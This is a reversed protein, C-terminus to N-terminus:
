KGVLIPLSNGPVLMEMETCKIFVTTKSVLYSNCNNEMEQLSIHEQM